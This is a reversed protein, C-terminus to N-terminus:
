EVAIAVEFPYAGHEDPTQGPVNWSVGFLGRSVYTDAPLDEPVAYTATMEDGADLSELAQGDSRTPRPGEVGESEVMELSRREGEHFTWLASPLAGRSTFTYPGEADGDANEPAPAVTLTFRRAADESPTVSVAVPLRDYLSEGVAVDYVTGDIRYYVPDDREAAFAEYADPVDDAFLQSRDDGPLAPARHESALAREFFTVLEADLESEDVVPRGWADGDTLERAAIGYPPDENEVGTRIRCVGFQDELYDYEDLFAAVSEPRNCRRYEGRAVNAGYATLAHM